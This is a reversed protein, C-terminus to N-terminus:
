ELSIRTYNLFHFRYNYNLNKKLPLNSDRIPLEEKVKREKEIRMWFFLNKSYLCFYLLFSHFLFVHFYPFCNLIPMSSTKIKPNLQDNLSVSTLIQHFNSLFESQIKSPQFIDNYLDFFHWWNTRDEVM